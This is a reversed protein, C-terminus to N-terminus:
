TGGRHIMYMIFARKIVEEYPADGKAVFTKQSRDVSGTVGDCLWEDGKRFLAVVVSPGVGLKKDVLWLWPNAVQAERRSPPGEQVGEWVYRQIARGAPDYGHLTFWEENTM